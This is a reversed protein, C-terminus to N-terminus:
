VAAPTFRSASSSNHCGRLVTALCYIAHSSNGEPFQLSQINQSQFSVLEPASRHQCFRVVPKAAVIMEDERDLQRPNQIHLYTSVDEQDEKCDLM